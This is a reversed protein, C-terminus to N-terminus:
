IVVRILKELQASLNEYEEPERNVRVVTTRGARLRREIVMTLQEENYESKRESGVSDIMLAPIRLYSDLNARYEANDYRLNTLMEAATVYKVEGRRSLENGIAVILEEGRGEIVLGKIKSKILGASIRATRDSIEIDRLRLGRSQMPLGSRKFRAERQEAEEAATKHRCKRLARYEIESGNMQYTSYIVEYGRGGEGYQCERLSSCGQCYAKEAEGNLHKPQENGREVEVVEYCSMLSKMTSGILSTETM